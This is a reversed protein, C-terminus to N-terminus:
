FPRQAVLAAEAECRAKDPAPGAARAAELEARAAALDAQFAADAKLAEVLGEANIRGGEVATVTHVGCVVRSEGFTRARALIADAHAPDLEALILGVTWGWSAHGSPYDPSAALLPSRMLCIEGPQSLYPRKTAFHDKAQDVGPRLDQSARRLLATLRPTSKPGTSVGVSCAFAEGIKGADDDERALSWRPTGELKRTELFVRKNELDAASGPAPPGALRKLPDYAGPALYGGRPAEDRAGAIRPAALTLGGALLALVLLGPAALRRSRFTASRM